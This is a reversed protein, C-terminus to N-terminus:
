EESASLYLRVPTEDSCANLLEEISQGMPQLIFDPCLENLPELVFKRSTMRPHPLALRDSSQVHGGLFLLDLDITRSQYGQNSSPRRRRGLERETHLLDDLLREAVPMQEWEFLLVQNLFAPTGEAMGWAETEYISSRRMPRSWISELMDRAQKLLAHRNGQNSGIGIAAKTIV